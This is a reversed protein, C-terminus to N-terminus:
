FLADEEMFDIVENESQMLTLIFDMWTEDMVKVRNSALLEGNLGDIVLTSVGLESSLSVIFVPHELDYDLSAVTVRGKEEGQAKKIAEIMSLKPELLEIEEHKISEVDSGQAAIAMNSFALLAFLTLLAHKM